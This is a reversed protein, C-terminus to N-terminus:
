LANRVCLNDEVNMGAAVQGRYREPINEEPVDVLTLYYRVEAMNGVRM